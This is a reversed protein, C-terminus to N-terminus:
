LIERIGWKQQRDEMVTWPLLYFAFSWPVEGDLTGGKIGGAEKTRSWKTGSNAAAKEQSGGSPHGNGQSHLGIENSGM